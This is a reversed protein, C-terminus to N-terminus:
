LNRNHCIAYNAEFELVGEQATPYASTAGSKSHPDPEFSITFVTAEVNRDHDFIVTPKLFM